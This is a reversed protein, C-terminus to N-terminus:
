DGPHPTVSGPANRTQNPREPLWRSFLQAFGEVVFVTVSILIFMLVFHYLVGPHQLTRAHQLYAAPDTSIQRLNQEARDSNFWALPICVLAVALFRALSSAKM